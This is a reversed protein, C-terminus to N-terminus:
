KRIFLREIRKVKKTTDDIEFIVANLQAGGKAVEFKEPMLTTFKRLVIDKDVGIVSDYPGTMGLDTIYATGGPLIRDDSTQVHTHTGFVIDVKGDLFWGMALKESTAEAHFDVVIFDAVDKLKDIEKLVAKFPCDIPDMYVRGLINVVGISKNSLHCVTSGKGPLEPNYNAPRVIRNDDNIFSLVDRKSWIHNGTTIVDVGFTYLEHAVSYTIGIGGASNEGNAVIFDIKYERKIGPLLEKVIRRGPNGIVDGIALINLNDRELRIKYPCGM